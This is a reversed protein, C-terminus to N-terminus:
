GIKLFPSSLLGTGFFGIPASKGNNYFRKEEFGELQNTYDFDWDIIFTEAHSFYDFDDSCCTWDTKYRFDITLFLLFILAFIFFNIPKNIRNKFMKIM